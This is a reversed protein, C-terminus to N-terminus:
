GEIIMRQTPKANKIIAHELAHGDGSLRENMEGHEVTFVNGSAPTSLAGQHLGREAVHQVWCASQMTVVNGMLNQAVSMSNSM